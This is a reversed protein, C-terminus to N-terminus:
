KDGPKPDDPKGRAAEVLADRHQEMFARTAEMRQVFEEGRGTLLYGVPTEVAWVTDGEAVKLRERMADPLVLATAGDVTILKLTLAM